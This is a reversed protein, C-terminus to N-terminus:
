AALADALESRGAYAYPHHFADRADASAVDLDFSDGTREDHVSVSVRNTRPNWLLWVDIGDGSRHDLERLQTDSTTSMDTHGAGAGFDM